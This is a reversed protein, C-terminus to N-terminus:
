AEGVHWSSTADDAKATDVVAEHMGNSIYGGMSGGVTKKNDNVILPRCPGMYNLM